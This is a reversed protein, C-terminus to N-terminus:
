RHCGYTTLSQVDPSAHRRMPTAAYGRRPFYSQKKGHAIRRAWWLFAGAAIGGLAPTIWRRWPALARAAAVLSGPHGTVVSETFAMGEHFAVTALGGVVGILSAWLLLWRDDGHYGATQSAPQASASTEALNPSGRM